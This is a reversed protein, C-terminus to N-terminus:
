RAAARGVREPRRAWWLEALDRRLLGSLGEVEGRYADRLRGVAAESMPEVGMHVHRGALWGAMPSRSLAAAARGLGRDHLGRSMAKALVYTRQRSPQWSENAPTDYRDPVYGDDVGLFRYVEQVTALPESVLDEFVIVHLRDREFRELYRGAHYWYRGRDLVGPSAALYEDFGARYRTTRVRHKYQSFAREVPDRVLLLLQADPNAAALRAPGAAEVLYRPSVEGHRRVTCRDFQERYWQPGRDYHRSFFDVEKVSSPLCLGPHSRLLGDLFTSGAKLAGIGVFSPFPTETAAAGNMADSM